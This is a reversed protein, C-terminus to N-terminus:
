LQDDSVEYSEPIYWEEFTKDFVNIRAYRGWLECKEKNHPSDIYAQWDAAIQDVSFPNTQRRKEGALDFFYHHYLPLKMNPFAMAFGSSLLEIAQVIEEDFFRVQETIGDNEIFHSDALIFHAGTKLSPVFRKEVPYPFGSLPLDTWGVMNKPFEPHDNTFINYRSLGADVFVEDGVRKYRPLYATVITKDNGTDDLAEQWIEKMASDWGKSFLTHSDIQLVNDEGDYRRRSLIRGTGVGANIDMDYRDVVINSLASAVAVVENYFDKNAMCSIGITIESANDANEMASQITDKLEEDLLSSVAVFISV